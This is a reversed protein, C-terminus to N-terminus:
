IHILSLRLIIAAFNHTEDYSLIQATAQEPDLIGTDGILANSPEVLTLNSSRIVDALLQSRRLPAKLFLWLKVDPVQLAMRAVNRLWVSSGDIINANVDGYLAINPM